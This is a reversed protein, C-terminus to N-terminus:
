AAICEANASTCEEAFAPFGRTKFTTEGSLLEIGSIV